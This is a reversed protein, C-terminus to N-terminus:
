PCIYLHKEFAGTHVIYFRLPFYGIVACGDHCRVPCCLCKWQVAGESPRQLSCSGGRLFFLIFIFRMKEGWVCCEFSFPNCSGNISPTAWRTGLIRDSIDLVSPLNGVGARLDLTGSGPVADPLQLGEKATDDSDQSRIAFSTAAQVDDQQGM